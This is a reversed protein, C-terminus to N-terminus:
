AQRRTQQQGMRERAQRQLELAREHERVARSAEALEAMAKKVAVRAPARASLAKWDDDAWIRTLIRAHDRPM